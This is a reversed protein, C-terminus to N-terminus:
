IHILSLKRATNESIGRDELSSYSGTYSTLFTTESKIPTINAEGTEYDYYANCSFCKAYGNSNLSVADSSDCKKCPLKHKVFKSNEM